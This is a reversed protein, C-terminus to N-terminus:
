KDTGIWSSYRNLYWAAPQKTLDTQKKPVTYGLLRAAEKKEKHDVLAVETIVVKYVPSTKTPQRVVIGECFYTLGKPDGKAHAHFYVGAGLKFAHKPSLRAPTAAKTM